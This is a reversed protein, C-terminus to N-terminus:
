DLDEKTGKDLDSLDIKSRSSPTFGFQAAFDKIAKMAQTEMGVEPRPLLYGKGSVFVRGEESLTKRAAALNSVAQCYCAFAHIDGSTLLGMKKLQPAMRRWEKKADNDLYSPPSVNKQGFKPPKKPIARHGPNGELVRFELPKAAPGPM